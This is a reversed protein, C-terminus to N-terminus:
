ENLIIFVKFIYQDFIRRTIDYLSSFVATGAKWEREVKGAIPLERKPLETTIIKCLLRLQLKKTLKAM